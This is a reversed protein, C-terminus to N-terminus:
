KFFSKGKSLAEMEESFNKQNCMQMGRNLGFSVVAEFLNVECSKFRCLLSYLSKTLTECSEGM